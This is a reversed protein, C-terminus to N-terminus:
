KNRYSIIDLPCEVGGDITFLSKGSRSYALRCGRAGHVDIVFPYHEPGKTNYDKVVLKGGCRLTVVAGPVLGSLNISM